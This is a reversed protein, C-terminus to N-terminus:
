RTPTLLGSTEPEFGSAPRLLTDHDLQQARNKVCVHCKCSPGPWETREPSYESERQLEAFTVADFYTSIRRILRM